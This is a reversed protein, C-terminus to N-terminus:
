VERVERVLRELLWLRELRALRELRELLPREEVAEAERELRAPPPSPTNRVEMAFILRPRLLPLNPRRLESPCGRPALSFETTGTREAQSASDGPQHWDVLHLRHCMQLVSIQVMGRAIAIYQAM